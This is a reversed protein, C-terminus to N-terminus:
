SRLYLDILQRPIVISTPPVEANIGGVAAVAIIREVGARYMAWLNARYNIQHPALTHDAGHRALFLLRQGHMEGSVLPASPSGYPTVQVERHVEACVGISELSTGGIIGIVSVSANDGVIIKVEASCLKGSLCICRQPRTPLKQAIAKLLRPWKLCFRKSLATSNM